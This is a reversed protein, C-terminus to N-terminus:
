PAVSGPLVGVTAAPQGTADLQGWLVAAVARWWAHPDGSGAVRLTGDRVEAQWGGVAAPGTTPRVPEAELALCRVDAGVYTPRLAPELAALDALTTVGSMVLLSDWGVAIAGEIDTDIRDGVVLPRRGAVRALTEQFLPPQPKGAVRPRRGAYKSVLAVLTGNGPGPGLATPVTLDTNSAVWPRGERVLLAGNIVQRWPMDPGYGQAVGAITAPDPGLDTVPLLGRDRLAEELGPGGIVYVQSGAPVMEAMVRAAAQASTVVDTAEAPIGLDTLHAAVHEPTRSANNTVFALRMGAERAAELGEPAGTVADAGIYVVGDLDLVAVDYSTALPRSSSGQM